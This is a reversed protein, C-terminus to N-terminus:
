PAWRVSAHRRRMLLAAARQESNAKPSDSPMVGQLESAMLKRVTPLPSNQSRQFRYMIAGEAHGGTDLWNSYGPDKAAVVIRYRGDSDVAAQESNISGLRHVYDLSEWWQNSLQFSWLDANPADLEILLVEDDTLRYWGEGYINDQLGSGSPTLQKLQNVNQARNAEVWPMWQELRRSFGALTEDLLQQSERDGRAVPSWNDDLRELRWASPTESAWDGFYERILLRTASNPVALWLGQWDAPKNASVRITVTGPTDGFDKDGLSGHAKFHPQDTIVQVAKVRANGLTGTLQYDGKPDIAASIYKADAADLGWKKINTAGVRLLPNGRDEGALTLEAGSALQALLYRLAEARDLQDGQPHNELFAVGADRTADMFQQWARAEPSDQQAITDPQTNADNTQADGLSPTSCLAFGLLLAGARAMTTLRIRHSLAPQLFIPKNM